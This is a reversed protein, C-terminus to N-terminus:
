VKESPFTELKEMFKHRKLQFVTTFELSKVTCDRARGSFFSTFGFSAKKKLKMLSVGCREYCMDVKGSTIFYISCDGEMGM